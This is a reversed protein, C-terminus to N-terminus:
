QNIYRFQADRDPQGPGERTKRNAPLRYGAATLLEAVLQRSVRHGMAQLAEALHRVSKSTWRLPLMPHGSATPEVLGELDGTSGCRIRRGPRGGSGGDSGLDASSAGDFGAGLSQVEGPLSPRESMWRVSRTM